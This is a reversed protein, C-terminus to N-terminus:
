ISSFVEEDQLLISSVGFFYFKAIVNRIVVCCKRSSQLREREKVKDMLKPPHRNRSLLFSLLSYFDIVRQLSCVTFVDGTISCIWTAKNTM